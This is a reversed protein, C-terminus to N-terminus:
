RMDWVQVLGAGSTAIKRGDPALAVKGAHAPFSSLQQGTDVDWLMVSAGDATALLRGDGSLAVGFIPLSTTIVQLRHYDSTDYIVTRYGGDRQLLIPYALRRGDASYSPRVRAEARPDLEKILQGDSLGFLQVRSQDAAVLFQNDPSIALGCASVPTTTITSLAQGTQLDWLTVNPTQRNCTASAMLSGDMSFVINQAPVNPNMDFSLLKNGTAADILKAQHQSANLVVATGDPSFFMYYTNTIANSEQGSTINLLKIGDPATVGLVNGDPSFAALNYLRNKHLSKTMLGTDVNWLRLDDGDVSALAHGDPSFSMGTIWDADNPLRNAKTPSGELPYMWIMGKSETSDTVGIALFRGDPSFALATAGASFGSGGLPYDISVLPRGSAADWIVVTHNDGGVAALTRGDPSFAVVTLGGPEAISPQEQGSPVDWMRITVSGVVGALRKSDPSFIFHDIGSSLDSTFLTSLEKGGVIDWLRLHWQQDHLEFTTFAALQGDPSFAIDRISTFGTDTAAVERGDAVNWKRITSENLGLLQQDATLTVGKLSGYTEILSKQELTAADLLYIGMSSSVALTKGDSLWYADDVTGEGWRAIESYNGGGSKENNSAQTSTPKAPVEISIPTSSRAENPVPTATSACSILLMSLLTVPIIRSLTLHAM